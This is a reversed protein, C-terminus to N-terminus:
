KKRSMMMESTEWKAQLIKELNYHNVAYKLISVMATHLSSNYKYSFGKKKIEVQWKLFDKQNLKRVKYEAFYPLIHLRFRSELARISQHKLKNSKWMHFEDYLDKFLLDQKEDYYSALFKQEAFKAENKTRFGSRSKQRIIGTKDEIYTRFYWTQRTYQCQAM